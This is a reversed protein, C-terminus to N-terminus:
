RLLPLKENGHKEVERYWYRIGSEPKYFTIIVGDPGCIGFVNRKKDYKFLFGDIDEFCLIDSTVPKDFFLRALAEYEQPTTCGEFDEGHACFHTELKGPLFSKAQIRGGHSAKGNIRRASLDQGEMGTGM